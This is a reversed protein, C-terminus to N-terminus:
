FAKDVDKIDFKVDKPDIHTPESIIEIKKDDDGEMAEMIDDMMKDRPNTPLEANENGPMLRFLKQGIKRARAILKIMLVPNSNMMVEPQKVYTFVNRIRREVNSLAQVLSVQEDVDDIDFTEISEAVDLAEVALKYEQSNILMDEM